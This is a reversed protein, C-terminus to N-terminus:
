KPDDGVSSNVLRRTFPWVQKCVRKKGVFQDGQYLAVQHPVFLSTWGGYSLNM